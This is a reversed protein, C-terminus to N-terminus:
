RVGVVVVGCEVVLRLPCCLCGLCGCVWCTVGIVVAVALVYVPVVKATHPSLISRILGCLSLLVAVCGCMAVRWRAGGCWWAAAVCRVLYM